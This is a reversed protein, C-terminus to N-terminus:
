KVIDFPVLAKILRNIESRINKECDRVLGVVLKSRMYDTTEPIVM